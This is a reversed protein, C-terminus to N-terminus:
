ETKGLQSITIETNFGTFDQVIELRAQREYIENNPSVTYHMENSKITTTLWDVSNKISWNLALDNRTSKVTAVGTGGKFSVNYVSDPTIYLNFADEWGSKGDTLTLYAAKTRINYTVRGIWTYSEKYHKSYQPKINISTQGSNAFANVNMSLTKALVKIGGETVVRNVKFEATHLNVEDNGSEIFSGRLLLCELHKGVVASCADM